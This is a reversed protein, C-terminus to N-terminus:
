RQATVICDLVEPTLNYLSRIGTSGAESERAVEAIKGNQSGSAKRREHGKQKM